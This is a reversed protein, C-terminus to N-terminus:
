RQGNTEAAAEFIRWKLPVPDRYTYEPETNENIKIKGAEAPSLFKSELTANAGKEEFRPKTKGSTRRSRSSATASVAITPAQRCKSTM